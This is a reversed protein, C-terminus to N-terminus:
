KEKIQPKVVPSAQRANARRQQILDAPPLLAEAPYVTWNSLMFRAPPFDSNPVIEGIAQAQVVQHTQPDIYSSFGEPDEPLNLRLGELTAILKDTSAHKGASALAHGIAMIGSYAGEATYTPYRGELQHFDAVFKRNRPTDPWNNHHRSSLILGSPAAEGLSALVEYNGGTDFNAIRMRTPLGSSSAQKLFRVFDDGWLGVVAIDARSKELEAIYSSYDAEYLRPWYEGAVQYRVGLRDLSSRLDRWSVHGYDYDPGLFVLRKWNTKKQLEALYRAGAAMSTYTDNSLRFYHRHFEEFSLRSSAHDTGILLVGREKAVRSVAQAAGSSVVGCLFRVGDREVYDTAIRKAFSAKSRDDEVLVRLRPANKDGLQARLDALALKIGGISDRGYLAVRGSLPFMCGVVADAEDASAGLEIRAQAAKPTALLGAALCSLLALKRSLGALRSVVPISRFM